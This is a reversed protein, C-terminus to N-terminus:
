AGKRYAKVEDNIEKQTMKSLGTKRAIAVAKKLNERAGSLIILKELEEFDLQNKKINYKKKEKPTITVTLKEM